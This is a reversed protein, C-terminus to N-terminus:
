AAKQTPHNAAKRPHPSGTEVYHKLEQTALTLVGGMQRKMVPTMFLNFPFALDATMHMDVRTRSSGLPKLSWRNRLGKVFFPMKEGSAEYAVVQRADDYETLTERFPGLETECVRGSCPAGAPADGEIRAASHSVSSAWRDVQHFQHGLVKWVQQSPAEITIQRTIQM